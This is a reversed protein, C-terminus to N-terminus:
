GGDTERRWYLIRGCGDCEIFRTSRKVEIVTQPPLSKYCGSCAGDVVYALATDKSRMTGEYRRLLSGEVRMAIRKREDRKVALSDDLEAVESTLESIDADIQVTASEAEEMARTANESLQEVEELLTLMADEATSIERKVFEIETNLAAYEENTKIVVQKSRLDTIKATHDELDRELRRREKKARELEGEISEADAVTHRKREELEVIRVPLLDRERGLESLEADIRQLELLLELQESM